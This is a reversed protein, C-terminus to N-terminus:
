GDHDAPMRKEHKMHKDHDAGSARTYTIEGDKVWQGGMKKYFTDHITNDDKHTTEMKMEVEGMPEPMTAIGHLVLTDGEMQGTMHMVGTSMSDIWISFYEQRLNDYGTISVGEFPVGMFDSEFSAYMYRGGLIPKAHMVGEGQEFEGPQMMFNTRADWKGATAHLLKHHEGPTGAQMMAQMMPDMDGDMEPQAVTTINAQQVGASYSLAGVAGILTLAGAGFLANRLM